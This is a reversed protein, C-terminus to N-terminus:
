FDGLDPFLGGFTVDWATDIINETKVNGTTDGISAIDLLNDLIQECEKTEEDSAIISFDGSKDWIVNALASEEQNTAKEGTQQSQHREVTVQLGNDTLGNIGNAWRGTAM